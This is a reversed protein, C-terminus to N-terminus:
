KALVAALAQYTGSTPEAGLARYLRAKGAEADYRVPETAGLALVREGSLLAQAVQKAEPKAASSAATPTGQACGAMMVGLGIVGLIARLNM